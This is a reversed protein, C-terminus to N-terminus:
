VSEGSCFSHSCPFFVTCQPPCPTTALYPPSPGLLTFGSDPCFLTDSHFSSLHTMLLKREGMGWMYWWSGAASQHSEWQIESSFLCGLIAGLLRWGGGPQARRPRQRGLQEEEGGPAELSHGPM